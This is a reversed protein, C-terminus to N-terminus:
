APKIDRHIIGRSHAAELGDTIQIALDLLEELKLPKDEIRQQLIQGELHEM